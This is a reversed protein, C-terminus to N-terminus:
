RPEEMRRLHEAVRAVDAPDTSYIHPEDKRCPVMRLHVMCAEPPLDYLGMEESLSVMERFANDPDMM